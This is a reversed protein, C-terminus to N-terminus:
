LHQKEGLAADKFAGDQAIMSSLNKIKLEGRLSNLKGLEKLQSYYKRDHASRIDDNLVFQSLTQLNTLQGLHPPMYRLNFCGEIELHRLHILNKM